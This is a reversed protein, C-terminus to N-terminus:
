PRLSFVIIYTERLTWTSKLYRVIAVASKHVFVKRRPVPFEDIGVAYLMVNEMHLPSLFLLDGNSNHLGDKTKHEITLVVRQEDVTVVALNTARAYKYMILDWYSVAQLVSRTAHHSNNALEGSPLERIDDILVRGVGMGFDPFTIDSIDGGEM